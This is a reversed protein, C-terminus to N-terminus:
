FTPAGHNAVRGECPRDDDHGPPLDCRVYVTFRSPLIVPFPKDCTAM